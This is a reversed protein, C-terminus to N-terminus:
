NTKDLRVTGADLTQGAVLTLGRKVVPRPPVMLVLASPGAKAEVRFTGDPNTMPPPGELQVSIKGDGSDAVITVPVGAAPKGDADVVTGIVVANATLTLEATAVQGAIVQVHTEANGAASTVRVTYAGPDVRGFSFTGDSSAFSRQARTPGDLEVTFVGAAGHVIGRLETIAAAQITITADPTVRPARGRVAGHNAEAIVTWPSRPLGGIEFHGTADTLVPPLENDGGDDTKQVTIMRSEGGSGMGGILDDLDQHVSVWADPLPKGDASVVTGRIVGDPRDVELEVGTKHDTAALTVTADTKMPLPRGRELVSLHYTAPTLGELTYEGSASTLTQAGSTVVGNVIVTRETGTRPAAMVTVAAVPKGSSDVVRGAISAGPAVNVIVDNMGPALTVPQTGQDGSPCRAALVYPLPSAAPLEFDGNPETMTPTVLMPMERPSLTKEDFDLRVECLQRPEVHGKVKVGRRVHVRVGDVDKDALEFATVGAPVFPGGRGVTQYRGPALGELVFAGKADTTAAADEGFPSVEVGAAPAGNEDTVTGRVVPGAGALIEVDTVQEAVGLGVITPSKSHRAGLAARLEYSGPRLGAIRFRGDAGSVISHQSAEGLLMAGADRRAGVTAGPMPEKTREDRVIGEIVGGPVLAFDATAGAAGVDVYRSQPAYDPESAAVLLAGEAVTLKYRGDAGSITSAIADGPRALAGLKAADIRAGAIPGGSVDTVIGSLQRGGRPLVLEVETDGTIERTVAAPMHDVASASITWEGREVEIPEGAKALRVDGEHALRVTAAVPGADDKVHVTLHAPSAASASPTAAVATASAHGPVTTSVIKGGHRWWLAIAVIAAVGV